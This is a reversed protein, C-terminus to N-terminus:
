ETVEETAEKNEFIMKKAKQNIFKKFNEVTDEGKDTFGNKFVVQGHEIMGKAGIILILLDETEYAKTISSYKFTFKTQNVQVNVQDACFKMLHVLVKGQEDQMRRFNIWESFRYGCIGMFYFYLMCVGLVITLWKIRTFWFVLATAVTFGAAISFALIRMRKNMTAFTKSCYQTYLKKTLIYRNEYM